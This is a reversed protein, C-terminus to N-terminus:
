ICQDENDERTLNNRVVIYTDTELDYVLDEVINLKAVVNQIKDYIVLM